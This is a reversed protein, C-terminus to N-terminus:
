RRGSGERALAALGPDRPNLRSARRYDRRAVARLGRRTALDGLLGWAVFDHPQNRTATLLSRRAPRYLGLRAYAASELYYTQQAPELALSDRADELAGVPDSLLKGGGQSQLRLALLQRVTPYAAVSALLVFAVIALTPVPVPRTQVPMLLVAAACIAIGTLGPILHIWDVSTHILWVIFTGGAAVAIAPSPPGRPSGRATRWFGYLVAGVFALLAAAGVLGLEGLTQLEVSHAQQVTEQTRRELYYTRDYNGAGVGKVPDSEFQNLAIRWYDYRNGGGSVLRTSSDAPRLATFARYQNRVQDFRKGPPFVVVAVGLVAILCIGAISIGRLSRGADALRRSLAASGFSALAWLAGALAGGALSAEAFSRLTDDSPSAGGGLDFVDRLGPVSVAVGVMIAVLAWARTLRGPVVILIAMASVVLGLLAGRSQTLAAVSILQTAAFVCLGRLLPQRAREAVAVLPWIGMLLCSANGNIYEVPSNLRNGVFLTAGDHLLLRALIYSAVILAGATTAGLLWRGREPRQVMFLLLALVVAYLLWRSADTVALDAAEAWGSSLLSWLWLALLGALAVAPAGSPVAPRAVAFAILLMISALLVPEWVTARYFGFFFASTGMALGLVVLAARAVLESRM